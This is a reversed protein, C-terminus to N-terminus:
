PAVSGDKPYGPTWRSLQVSVGSGGTLAAFDLLPRPIEHKALDGIFEIVIDADPFPGGAVDVDGSAINTHTELETEVEAATMDFDFTLTDTTGLVNLDVDFTGGTPTGGITIAWKENRPSCGNSLRVLAWRVDEGEGEEDPGLWLIHASGSGATKLRGTEGEEIDAFEHAEDNVLVRVWVQGSVVAPVVENVKAPKILVAFKGTHDAETPELGNFVPREFIVSPRDDPTIAIAGLGVVAHALNLVGGTANKVWVLGRPQDSGRALEASQGSSQNALASDIFAAFQKASPRFPEGQTPKRYIDGM